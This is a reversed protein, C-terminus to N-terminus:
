KHRRLRDSLPVLSEAGTMVRVANAGVEGQKATSGSMFLFSGSTTGGEGWERGKRNRMAWAPKALSWLIVKFKQDGAEAEQPSPNCTDAVM